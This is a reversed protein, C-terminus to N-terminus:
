QLVLPVVVQHVGTDAVLHLRLLPEALQAQPHLPLSLTHQLSQARALEYCDVGHVQKLHELLCRIQHPKRRVEADFEAAFQTLPLYFQAVHLRAQVGIGHEGHEGCFLPPEDRLRHQVVQRLVRGAKCPEETAAAFAEVLELLLDPFPLAVERLILGPRRQADHLEHRHLDLALVAADAHLKPLKVRTKLKMLWHEFHRCHLHPAALLGLVRQLPKQARAIKRVQLAVKLHPGERIDDQAEAVRVRVAHARLVDAPFVM